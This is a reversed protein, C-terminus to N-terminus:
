TGRIVTCFARAPASLYWPGVAQALGLPIALLFGLVVSLVLIWLTRWLGQGALPLYKPLWDWRLTLACWVVLGLALAIMVVRHPMLWARLASM